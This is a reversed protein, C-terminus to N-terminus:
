SCVGGTAVGSIGAQDKTAMTEQKSKGQSDVCWANLGSTPSNLQVAVAWNTGGVVQSCASFGAGANMAAKVGSFFKTDAFLGSMTGGCSGVALAAPTTSNCPAANTYCGYLDYNVEAQARLNALNSKVAADSGKSRAGNLAALVVTALVGIIAVVVLLEILTFGTTFKPQSFSRKVKFISM